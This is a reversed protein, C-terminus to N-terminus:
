KGMGGKTEGWYARREREEWKAVAQKAYAVCQLQSAQGRTAPVEIGLRNLERVQGPTPVLDRWGKKRSALIDEAEDKAIESAKEQADALETYSGALGAETRKTVPDKRIVLVHVRQLWQYWRESRPGWHAGERRKAEGQALRESDPLVLALTTTTNLGAVALSGEYVWALETKRAMYNLVKVIISDPDIATSKGFLDLNFASIMCGAKEAREQAKKVDKPTGLIDGAMVIDRADLPAFDLVVCSKKGPCTRLGRGVSQAWVLSSKTPAARVICSTEPFDVGETWVKMNWVVQIKGAQYDRAVREREDKPTGGDIAVAEIGQRRFYEATAYAQSVSAAFGITQRDKAFEAWKQYVLELVNEAKLLDGISQRETSEGYGGNDDELGGFSFPLSFGYAQMPVLVGAEVADQISFKYACSQVVKSIGDGDSRKPTATLGLLYPNDLQRLVKNWELSTYHHLEDVIVHSIPGAELVRALRAPNTLTQVTCVPIRADSADNAGQVAGMEDALEPYDQRAREIPQSILEMLHGLFLARKMQGSRRLTDLVHLAIRTKGGGTCIAAVTRKIGRKDWEDFIAKVAEEQHDWLPRM